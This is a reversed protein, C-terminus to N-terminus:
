LPDLEILFTLLYSLPNESSFSTESRINLIDGESISINVNKPDPKFWCTINNDEVLVFGKMDISGTVPASGDTAVFMIIILILSRYEPIGPKLTAWEELKEVPM